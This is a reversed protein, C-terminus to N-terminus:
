HTAKEDAYGGEIMFFFGPLLDCKTNSCQGIVSISLTVM